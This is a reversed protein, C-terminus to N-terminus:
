ASPAGRRELDHVLRDASMRPSGEAAREAEHILEVVRQNYPAELGQGEALRVIEGNLFEVETRRRRQLDQWMSARSEPDVRLQARVVLRVLFTPLKFVLSMMRLPVGRFSATPIGAAGLVHLAEDLLMTMVRRYGRSLIMERTSADSLASVANNLNVVLKTWQEPAIDDVEEVEIGSARLAHVWRHDDPTSKTELVLPGTTTQRMIGGDQMVVNFGVVSAVVRNEPLHERLIEPNRVGNQLSVVVTHPALVERLAAAVDATAGSKVCCLVVDCSGLAKADTEFRIKSADVHDEDDFGRVTLGHQHLTKKLGARGVFTVKAGSCALRGGVYCGISGAGMIGLNLTRSSSMHKPALMAARALRSLKPGAM